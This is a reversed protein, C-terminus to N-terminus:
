QKRATLLFLPYARKEGSALTKEIEFFYEFQFDTFGAKELQKILAHQEFGNHGDFDAYEEHFSGDEKDLDAIGLYGGPKLLNAFTHLMAPVDHIHHLTLLTYILDYKEPWSEQTLDVVKAAMNDAGGAKIKNRAQEIMGASVDVLTIQELDKQLQFSVLGTGSGFDLASKLQHDRILARLRDALKEARL